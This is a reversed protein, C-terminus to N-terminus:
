SRSHNVEDLENIFIVGPPGTESKNCSENHGTENLITWQKMDTQNQGSCSHGNIM